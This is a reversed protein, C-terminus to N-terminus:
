FGDTGYFAEANQVTLLLFRASKETTVFTRRSERSSQDGGFDLGEDVSRKVPANAACRAGTDTCTRTRVSTPSSSGGPARATRDGRCRKDLIRWSCQRADADLFNLCEFSFKKTTPLPATRSFGATVPVPTHRSRSWISCNRSCGARREARTSDSTCGVTCIFSHRGPPVRVCASQLM